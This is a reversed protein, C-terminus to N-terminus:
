LFNKCAQELRELRTELRNRDMTLIQNEQKLRNENSITLADIVGIYGLMKDNGELLDNDSPKVYSELALGNSVHGMLIESYIPAMGANIACTQFAKRLGHTMKVPRREGQGNIVPRREIVGSKLGIIKIMRRFTQTDLVRPRSARIEDHIDFDERILPSDEKLPREGHRYRYALYSDIEKACEISCYTVYEGQENDYVRIKYLQYKEIKELDRIKLSTIAGVRIGSSFMLLVAIRGRQDAKELMRQIELHTYPRDKRNRRKAGKGIYSKIKKWKLEIDNTEYFKKVASIRNNITSQSLQLEERLYIVYDILQSQIIKPDVQLLQECDNVGRHRLYLSLSNKYATRTFRSHITEIFNRYSQGAFLIQNSM